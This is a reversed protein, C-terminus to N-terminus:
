AKGRGGALSASALLLSLPVGLVLAATWGLWAGRGVAAVRPVQAGLPGPAIWDDMGALWAISAVLLEGNGPNVLAVRQGGISVARDTAWSMLWGGSGVVIARRDGGRDVAVALVVSESLSSVNSSPPRDLSWDESIWRDPGPDLAVIATAGAGGDIPVPLPLLCRQGGLAVAIPHDSAAHEIIAARQVDREGPGTAVRELVVSGTNADVGLMAALAAWPDRQGYRPLFSPYLGLLVPEGDEILRRTATLLTREAPTTELSPRSSPPMVIWATPVGGTDPRPDEAPRWEIVRIRNAEILSRAAVLDSGSERPLLVSQEEGHVFVAVPTVGDRLARIASSLVQEGRFRQDFAVDGSAGRRLGTAPFLMRAPLMTARNPSMVLAGEGAMMRMALDGLEMRGLALLGDDARALDAAIADFDGARGNAWEEVGGSRDTALWWGVESLENSWQGLAASLVDRALGTRPLPQGADVRMASDIEDLVLQGQGGVLALASALAVLTEREAEDSTFGAAEEVEASRAAAFAVLREFAARGEALADEAAKLEGAHRAMLERLLADYAELSSPDLPDIREVSLSPSAEALRRLVEDVQGAVQRDAMSDDLLVVIRWDGELSKLMSRTRDSLSYARTRTADVRIRAQEQLSLDNIAVLGAGLLLLALLMRPVGGRRGRTREMSVAAVLVAAATISLFYVVSASDVLGMTFAGVRRAPDAHYIADAMSLPVYTPLVKAGLALVLWFFTTVLYAVVQSTTAASVVLGTSLCAAGLLLLGLYGSGIEGLDPSAHLEMVLLLPLTTALVAGLSLLGGLLKGAAIELPRLPSALLLEWTGVRREEAVLRMSIAPCVLLLMWAALDMVPQMTAPAGSQLVSACFAIACTLSFLAGIIAGTPTLLLSQLDRRAIAFVGNM